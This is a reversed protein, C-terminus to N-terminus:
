LVRRVSRNPPGAARCFSIKLLFRGAYERYLELPCFLRAMFCVDQHMRGRSKRRKEEEGQVFSSAVSVFPTQLENLAGLLANEAGTCRMNGMAIGNARSHCGLM